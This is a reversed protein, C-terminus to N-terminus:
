NGRGNIVEDTYKRHMVIANRLLDVKQERTAKSDEMAKTFNHSAVTCSRITDTRGLQFRRLSGTEYTACPEGHLRFYALQLAIQIFADPSMKVSKPFNKGFGDFRFVKLDVDNIMADAHQKADVINQLIDPSLNFNLKQPPKAGGAPLSIEVNKESFGLIHDMLSVIAPGEATTHEYNLGCTGNAGVIFQLTKDFWRNGSNLDSGGGHLMAKAAISREEAYEEHTGVPQDLCLVFISRQITDMSAKNTKDKILKHYQKSWNDRGEMTLLGLPAVKQPSEDVIKLLQQYIQEVNLPKGDHGYVDLSFMTNNHIIVIHRPPDSGDPPFCTWSDKKKGPIRCGTLIQYYQIMCLPKGGLQEVPLSQEDVMVKYDLVAAVVKAAFRLQDAHSSYNQRPFVVGPNVNISVPLRSELYAIDRWWDSLWNIKKNSREELLVQLKPGDSKVFEKVVRHTQQLEEESLLPQVSELFKDMTQAIPPVPLRPLSDQVSFMRGGPIRTVKLPMKLVQLWQGKVLSQTSLRFM